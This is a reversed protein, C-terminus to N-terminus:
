KRMAELAKIRAELEKNKEHLNTEEKDAPEVIDKGNKKIEAPRAHGRLVDLLRQQQDLNLVMEGSNIKADVRDGVYSHGEQVGGKDFNQMQPMIQPAPAQKRINQMDRYSVGQPLVDSGEGVDESGLMEEAAMAEPGGLARGVLGLAALGKAGTKLVAKRRAAALAADDVESMGSAIRRADEVMDVERVPPVETVIPASPIVPKKVVVPAQAPTSPVGFAKQKMQTQPALVSQGRVEAAKLRDANQIAEDAAQMKRSLLRKYTENEPNEAVLRELNRLQDRQTRVEYPAVDQATFRKAKPTGGDAFGPSFDGSAGTKELEEQIGHTVYKQESDSLGKYIENYNSILGSDLYNNGDTTKDAFKGLDAEVIGGEAYRTPGFSVDKWHPLYVEKPQSAGLIKQAGGMAAALGKNREQEALATKSEITSELEPNKLDSTNVSLQGSTISNNQLQSPDIINPGISPQKAQMLKLRSAFDMPQAIDGNEAHVVDDEHIAGGDQIRPQDDVNFYKQLRTQGGDAFSGTFSSSAAGELQNPDTKDLGIGGDNFSGAFSKSSASNLQKQDTNIIGGDAALQSGLLGAGMGALAGYGAGAPGGATAGIAAGTGAGGLLAAGIGPKTTQPLATGAQMLMNAQGGYAGAKGQALQYKNQFDAQNLQKNYQQQQNRLGAATEAIRQRQALNQAQVDMRTKTNMANIADQAAAKKAQEDFEQGRIQGGLQGAQALAAMKLANSQGAIDVAQNAQQNAANQGAMLSALLGQGSSALGRQAQESMAAQRQAEGTAQAGQLVKRLTAQDEPTLGQEGRQQLGSLASMQAAQLRPDTSVKGMESAAYEEPSLVGVLEPAELELKMAQIDPTTLGQYQQAAKDGMQLAAERLGAGPDQKKSGM